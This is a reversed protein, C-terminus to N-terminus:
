PLPVSAGQPSDRVMPHLVQAQESGSVMGRRGVVGGEEEGLPYVCEVELNILALPFFSGPVMSHNLFSPHLSRILLALLLIPDSLCNVNVPHKSCVLVKIVYTMKRGGRKLAKWNQVPPLVFTLLPYIVQVLKFLGQPTPNSEFEVRASEVGPM